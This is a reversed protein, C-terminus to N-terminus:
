KGAARWIQKHTWQLCSRVWTGDCENFNLPLLASPHATQFAPGLHKCCFTASSELHWPHPCKRCTFGQLAQHFLLATQSYPFPIAFCSDIQFRFMNKSSGALICLWSWHIDLMTQAPQVVEYYYISIISNPLVFRYVIRIDSNSFRNM